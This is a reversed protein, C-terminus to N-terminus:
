AYLIGFFLILNCLPGYVLSYICCMYLLTTANVNKNKTINDDTLLLNHLEGM